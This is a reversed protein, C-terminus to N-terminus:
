NVSEPAAAGTRAPNARGEAAALQEALERDRQKIQEDTMNRLPDPTPPTTDTTEIKDPVCWAKRQMALLSNGLQTLQAIQTRRLGQGSAEADALTKDVDREFAAVLKGTLRQQKQLMREMGVARSEPPLAAGTPEPQLLSEDSAAVAAVEPSEAAIKRARREGEWGDEKSWYAVTRPPIKLDVAIKRQSQGKLVYREYAKQRKPDNYSHQLPLAM